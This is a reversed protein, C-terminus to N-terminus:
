TPTGRVDSEDKDDGKDGEMNSAQMTQKATQMPARSLNEGGPVGNEGNDRGTEAATNSTM